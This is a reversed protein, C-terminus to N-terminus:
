PFPIYGCLEPTFNKVYGSVLYIQLRTAARALERCEELDKGDDKAQKFAKHYASSKRSQKAKYDAGKEAAAPKSKASAKSKPAKKM